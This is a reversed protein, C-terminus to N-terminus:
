LTLRCTRQDSESRKETSGRKRKPKEKEEKGVFTDQFPVILFGLGLTPVVRKSKM